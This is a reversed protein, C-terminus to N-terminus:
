EATISTSSLDPPLALHADESHGLHVVVADLHFLVQGCEEVVETNVGHDFNYFHHTREPRFIELLNIEMFLYRCTFVFLHLSLNIDASLRQTVTESIAEWRKQWGCIKHFWYTEWVLLKGRM